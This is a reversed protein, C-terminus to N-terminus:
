EESGAASGDLVRHFHDLERLPLIHGQAVQEIGDSHPVIHRVIRCGSGIELDLVLAIERTLAILGVPQLAHAIEGEIRLQRVLLHM